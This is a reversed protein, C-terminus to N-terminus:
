DLSVPKGTRQSEYIALIVALASRAEALGVRPREGGRVAHLFDRYQDHHANSLAGPERSGTPGQASATLRSAFDALQNDAGSSAPRDARHVYILEDDDIVVSGRSGHIQLRASLGPYAATTGHIVGVAGSAFRLVAVATDEVDIREHALTGGYAMVEVAKGMAGLMLDITHVSQNMLAGGGDLEWTGRWDGSDYYEQSRWWAVSAVASTLDGLEGAAIAEMLIETSADFRHQSVVGLTVGAAKHAQALADAKDLAIDVPKEVLVHKGAQLAEIAHDAHMGSPTCIAVADFDGDRLADALSGFSRVGHADALESAREPVVDVVAALEVGDLESMVLAHWRGIVGAGVIAFKLPASNM